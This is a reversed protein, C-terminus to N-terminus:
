RFPFHTRSYVASLLIPLFKIFHVFLLSIVIKCLTYIDLVSIRTHSWGLRCLRAGGMQQVPLNGLDVAVHHGLM